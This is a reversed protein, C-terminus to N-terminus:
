PPWRGPSSSPAALRGARGPRSVVSATCLRCIGVPRERYGAVQDPETDDPALRSGTRRLEGQARERLNGQACRVPEPYVGRVPEPCAGPAIIGGCRWGVMEVCTRSLSRPWGATPTCTVRSRRWPSANVMSVDAVVSS